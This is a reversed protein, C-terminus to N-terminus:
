SSRLHVKLGSSCCFSAGIQLSIYLSYRGWEAHKRPHAGAPVRGIGAPGRVTLCLRRLALVLVNVLTKNPAYQGAPFRWTPQARANVGLNTLLTLLPPERAANSSHAIDPQGAVHSFQTRHCRCCTCAGDAGRVSGAQPTGNVDFRNRQPAGGTLRRYRIVTVSVCQTGNVRGTIAINVGVAALATLWHHYHRRWPVDQGDYHTENGLRDDRHAAARNDFDFPTPSLSTSITSGGDLLCVPPLAIRLPHPPLLSFVLPVVVHHRGTVAAVVLGLGLSADM